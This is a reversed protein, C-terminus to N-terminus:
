QLRGRYDNRAFTLGADEVLYMDFGLNGAMLITAEVSDSTIVEFIVLSNNGCRAIV